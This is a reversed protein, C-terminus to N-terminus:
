EPHSRLVARLESSWPVLASNVFRNGKGGDKIKAGTSGKKLKGKLTKIEADRSKLESELTTIRKKLAVNEEDVQEAEWKEADLKGELFVCQAALKEADTLIDYVSDLDRPGDDLEVRWRALSRKYSNINDIAPHVTQQFPSHPM